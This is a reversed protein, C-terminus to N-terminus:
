RDRALDGFEPMPRRLMESGERNRLLVYPEKARGSLRALPRDHAVAALADQLALRVAASLAPELRDALARAEDGGSAAAAVLQRQVNEIYPELNM